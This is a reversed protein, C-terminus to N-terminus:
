HINHHFHPAYHTGAVFLGLQPSSWIASRPYSSNELVSQWSQGRNTTLLIRGDTGVAVVQSASLGHIARLTGSTGSPQQQWSKGRDASHLILGKDGVIYVDDASSGWVGLLEAPPEWRQVSWSGGGDESHIITGDAGVAYVDSASSGWVAHMNTRQSQWGWTWSTGRDTSRLVGDSTGVFLREPSSGWISFLSHGALTHLPKWDSPGDRHLLQGGDDVAYFDTPSAGWVGHLYQAGTFERTWSGQAPDFCFIHHQADGFTGTLFLPGAPAGGISAFLISHGEQFPQLPLRIAHWRQGGDRSHLLEAGPGDTRPSPALACSALAGLLGTLHRWRGM